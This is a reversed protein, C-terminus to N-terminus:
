VGILDVLAIVLYISMAESLCTVGVLAVLLAWSKM